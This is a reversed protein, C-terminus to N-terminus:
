FRWSSTIFIFFVVINNGTTEVQLEPLIGPESAKGAYYVSVTLTKRSDGKLEFVVGWREGFLPISIKSLTTNGLTRVNNGYDYIEYSVNINNV